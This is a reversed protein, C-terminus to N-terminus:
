LSRNANFAAPVSVLTPESSPRQHVSLPSVSRSLIKLESRSPQRQVSCIANGSSALSALDLVREVSTPRLDFGRDGRVEADLGKGLATHGLGQVDRGIRALSRRDLAEVRRDVVRPQLFAAAM